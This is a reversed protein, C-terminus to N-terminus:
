TRRHFAVKGTALRETRYTPDHIRRHHQPCLLRGTTLDTAGGESWPHDHHAITMAPPKDCDEATCGGDRIGMALRMAPTHFRKKRGVDLPRSAGDLVIPVLGASCALRRAEAVSIRGGTDLTCVGAADLDALLQRLTMTVVVTAGCGGTRPVEADHISELLQTLALGRRTETPLDPDVVVADPRDLSTYSGLLKDLMRGHLAPVRFRGHCIGERDERMRFEGKRLAKAEQAALARGEWLEAVEPAVVELVRWGLTALKDADFHAAEAVLHEEAQDIQDNSLAFDGTRPLRDLATVVVRAQATNVSGTDLGAALVAYQELRKGLRLDSRAQRRTQRTRRSLWDAATNDGHTDTARSRDTETVLRLKLM